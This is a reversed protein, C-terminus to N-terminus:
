LGCIATDWEGVCVARRCSSIMMVVFNNKFTSECLSSSFSVSSVLFQTSPEWLYIMIKQYEPCLCFHKPPMEWRFFLSLCVFLLSPFNLVSVSSLNKKKSEPLKHFIFFLFLYVMKGFSVDHHSVWTFFLSHGCSSINVHPFVANGEKNM